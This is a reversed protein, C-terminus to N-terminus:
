RPIWAGGANFYYRSKGMQLWGAAMAGSAKLYYWTNGLKLWGTAMAGSEKLYYWTNGLRLWGTAMAGSEKLYYWTNGLRLWGTQRYGHNNFYYWRNEILVWRSIPYTGDAYVYRWGESNQVWGEKREPPPVVTKESISVTFYCYINESYSVKITQSGTRSSDFGSIGYQSDNLGIVTNDALVAQVAMGSTDLQEGTEYQRKAPPICTIRVM